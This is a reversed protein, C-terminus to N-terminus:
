FFGLQDKAEQSMMEPNWFPVWVIHVNVEDLNPYARQICSQVNAIIQPGVPCGPSTLTMKVDVTNGDEAVNTEYVLGIDVINIGIEPDVVHERIVERVAESTATTM